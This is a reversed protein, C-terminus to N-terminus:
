CDPVISVCPDYMLHAICDEAIDKHAMPAWHAKYEELYSQTTYHALRVSKSTEDLTVLGCCLSVLTHIDRLNEMDFVADGIVTCVAAQLTDLSLPPKAFTLWALVRVALNRHGQPQAQVRVLVDSYAANLVAPLQRERCEGNTDLRVLSRLADRIERKSTKDCLSDMYLKM